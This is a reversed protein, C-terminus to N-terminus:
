NTPPFPPTVVEFESPTGLVPTLSEDFVIYWFQPNNLEAFQYDVWNQTVDDPAVPMGYYADCAERANIAEEETNYQYGNISQM